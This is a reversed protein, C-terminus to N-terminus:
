IEDIVLPSTCLRPPDAFLRAFIAHHSDSGDMFAILASTDVYAKHSTALPGPGIIWRDTHPLPSTTATSNGKM